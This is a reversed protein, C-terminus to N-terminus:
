RARGPVALSSPRRYEGNADAMLCGLDQHLNVIEPLPTNDQEAPIDTPTKPNDSGATAADTGTSISMSDDSQSADRQSVDTQSADRLSDDRLSVAKKQESVLRRLNPITLEEEPFCCRCLERLLRYEEESVFYFPKQRRKSIDVSCVENISRCYDCPDNADLRVTLEKDKTPAELRGVPNTASSM